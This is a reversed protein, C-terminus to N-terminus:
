LDIDAWVAAHDSAQHVKHTMTDFIPWRDGNTGGWAGKRFVGASTVNAFLNPSL